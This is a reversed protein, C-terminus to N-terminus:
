MQKLASDQREWSLKEVVFAAKTVFFRVWNPLRTKKTQPGLIQFWNVECRAATEVHVICPLSVGYSRCPSSQRVAVTPFRAVDGQVIKERILTNQSL